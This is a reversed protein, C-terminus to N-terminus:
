IIFNIQLDIYQNHELYFKGIVGDNLNLIEFTYPFNIQNDDIIIDLTFDTSNFESKIIKRNFVGAYSLNICNNL